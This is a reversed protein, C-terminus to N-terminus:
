LCKRRWRIFFQKFSSGDPQLYRGDNWLVHVANAADVAVQPHFRGRSIRRYSDGEWQASQMPDMLVVLVYLKSGIAAGADSDMRSSHQLM